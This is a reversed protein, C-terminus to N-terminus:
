KHEKEEQIMTEYLKFLYALREEASEFPKTRYCIEIVKDLDNHATRLDAPMKEPDYLAALNKEPYKERIDLIEYVNNEIMRKQKETVNPFPFTNYCLGSLYRIRNALRGATRRVWLMHMKSSIVGFVYPEPDYIAAASSIIISDGPLLDSPIYERNESSVIPIIIQSKTATHTYRFQYPRNAIGKAVQGGSLRFLKTAEIRKKIPEIKEAETLDSDEIWLCYRLIGNILEDAGYARRIFKRAQPSSKLLEEKESVSLTLNGNEYPSNGTIMQPLKSIPKLRKAVIVDDGPALYPNINNVLISINGDYLKKERNDKKWVGIISVTVGANGKASNSWNFPLYAFGIELGLKFINPWLQEVQAGQNISSTTVLAFRSNADLYLSAKLFWIAIYDLEKFNGRGAFNNALEQKQEKSQSKGGLYPPNSILYVEEDAKKPCVVGWDLTTANGCVISGTDVLPILPIELGFLTKFEINMQHKALWLSLIAIEHAFDDIEIGYFNELKIGSMKFLALKGEIELIRQLIQHELMRLEKYAIILFNGSGCAPDFVKIEYIRQLLKELRPKSQYCKDFEEKLDELFLPEIVKMINIVSTYHMGLGARQGPHVVAQIMSGFIDPNIQAWNLEGCEIILRRAQANFKPAPYETSFLGGNVYPFAKIHAPYNAKEEVDLAKFLENLYSDLDSGDEQTYSEISSTFQSKDFVETDEAFFCFLLRSFFVNLTHQFEQSTKTNHRIIADYLKAMREAAKIDAINETKLQAKEMGAWPLFFAYHEAINKVPIDLTEETKTDISLLQDFDTVIIFRPNHSIINSDHKINDISDHLDEHPVHKFFLNNKWLIEEPLKSLNYDGSKLRTISAQPKGYALLFKYIFEHDFKASKVLKNVNEEVKKLTM